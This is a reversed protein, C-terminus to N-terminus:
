NNWYKEFTEGDIEEIKENNAILKEEVNEFKEVIKKNISTLAIEADVDAVKALTVVQWLIKGISEENINELNAVTQKLLETNERNM